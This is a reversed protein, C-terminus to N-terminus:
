VRLREARGMLGRTLTGADFAYTAFRLRKSLRMPSASGGENSRRGSISGVEGYWTLGQQINSSRSGLRMVM